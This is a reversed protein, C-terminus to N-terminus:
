RIPERYSDPGKSQRPQPAPKKIEQPMTAKKIGEQKKIPLVPKNKPKESPAPMIEETPKALEAINPLPKMEPAPKNVAEPTPASNIAAPKETSATSLLNTKIENVLGEAIPQSTKLQKQLLSIADKETLEKKFLSIATQLVVGGRIIFPEQNEDESLMKKALEEDTEELSYKNLISSIIESTDKSFYIKTEM